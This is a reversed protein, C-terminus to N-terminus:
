PGRHCKNLTVSPATFLIMAGMPGERWLWPGFMARPALSFHGNQKLTLNGHMKVSKVLIPGRHCRNLTVSPATCLIMAGMPGRRWLWPGFTARPALSFHRNQKLTLNGHMKVSKVLIPGRHCKNLTVSPATCLIMAGM